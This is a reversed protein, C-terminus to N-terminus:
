PIQFLKFDYIFIKIFVYFNGGTEYEGQIQFSASEGSM